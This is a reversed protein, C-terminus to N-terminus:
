NSAWLYIFVITVVISIYKVTDIMTDLERQRTDDYINVM